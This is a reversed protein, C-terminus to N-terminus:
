HQCFNKHMRNGSLVLKNGQSEIGSLFSSSKCQGLFQKIAVDNENSKSFNMTQNLNLLAFTFPCYKKFQNNGSLVDVSNIWNAYKKIHFM